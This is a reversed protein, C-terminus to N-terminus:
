GRKVEDCDPRAANRLDCAEQAGARTGYGTREVEGYRNIIVHNFAGARKFTFPGRWVLPREQKWM